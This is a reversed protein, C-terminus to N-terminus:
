HNEHPTFLTFISNGHIKRHPFGKWKTLGSRFSTQRPLSAIPVGDSWSAFKIADPLFVRQNPFNAMNAEMLGRKVMFFLPKPWRFVLNNVMFVELFIPKPPGMGVFVFIHSVTSPQFGAGTSTPLKDNNNVPNWVDWTTCSKLWWGYWTTKQMNTKQKQKLWTECTKTWKNVHKQKSKM